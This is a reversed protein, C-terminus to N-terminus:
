SEQHFIQKWSQTGDRNILQINVLAEVTTKPLLEVKFQTGLIFIVISRPTATCAHLFFPFIAKFVLSTLILLSLLFSVYFICFLGCFGTNETHQSLSSFYYKNGTSPRNPVIDKYGAVAIQKDSFCSGNAWDDYGNCEFAEYQCDRNRISDLFLWVARKHSCAFDEFVAAGLLM